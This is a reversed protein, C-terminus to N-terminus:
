SAIYSYSVTNYEGQIYMNIIVTPLLISEYGKVNFNHYYQDVTGKIM